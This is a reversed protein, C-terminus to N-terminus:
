MTIKTKQIIAPEKTNRKSYPLSLRISTIYVEAKVISCDKM